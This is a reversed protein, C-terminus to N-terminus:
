WGLLAGFSIVPLRVALIRQLSLSDSLSFLHTARQSGLWQREGM